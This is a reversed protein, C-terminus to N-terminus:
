APQGVPIKRQGAGAKPVRLQLVGNTLNAQVNEPEIEVPFDLKRWLPLPSYERQIYKTGSNPETQSPETRVRVSFADAEIVIEDPKLGPVPIEVVYADGAPSEYINALLASNAPETFVPTRMEIEEEM